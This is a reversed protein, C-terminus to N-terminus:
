FTILFVLASQASKQDWKLIAQEVITCFHYVVSEM